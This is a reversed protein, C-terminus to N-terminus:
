GPEDGLRLQSGIAADVAASATAFAAHIGDGTGKVLRGGNADVAERLILDHRGLAGRMADPEREWLRTSVELDSFLVTVTGTPFEVM